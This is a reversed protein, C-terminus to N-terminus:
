SEAPLLGWQVRLFALYDRLPLIQDAPAILMGGDHATQGTSDKATMGALVLGKLTDQEVRRITEIAVANMWQAAPQPQPFKVLLAWGDQYPSRRMREAEKSWRDNRELVVLDEPSPWRLPEDGVFLALLEEGKAISRGARPLSLTLASSFSRFAHHDLGLAWEGKAATEDIWLHSRDFRVSPAIQDPKEARAPPAGRGRLAQDLPCNECDFKRDCLRYDMMGAEMWICAGDPVPFSRGGIM